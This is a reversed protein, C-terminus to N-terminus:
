DVGSYNILMCISRQFRINYYLSSIQKVIEGLIEAAFGVKFLIIVYGDNKRHRYLGNQMFAYVSPAKVLQSVKAIM